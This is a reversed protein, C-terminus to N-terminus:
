VHARGIENFEKYGTRKLGYEGEGSLLEEMIGSVYDILADDPRNNTELKIVRQSAGRVIGVYNILRSYNEMDSMSRASVFSMVLIIVVVLPLGLRVIKKM